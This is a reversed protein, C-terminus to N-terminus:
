SGFAETGKCMIAKEKCTQGPNGYLWQAFSSQNNPIETNATSFFQRQSHKRNYVDFPDQTFDNFFKDKIENEVDKIDCAPNREPNDQYENMLVNGFPNNNTPETCNKKIMKQLKPFTGTKTLKKKTALEKRKVVIALLIILIVSFLLYITNKNAFSLLVGAYLLFRTIANSQEYFSLQKSPWFEHLRQKSFLVNFDETWFPDSSKM